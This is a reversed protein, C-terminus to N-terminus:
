IYGLRLYKWKDKKSSDIKNVRICCGTNYIKSFFFESYMIHMIDGKTVIERDNNEILGVIYTM